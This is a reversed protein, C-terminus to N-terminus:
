VRIHMICFTLMTCWAVRESRHSVLIFASHRGLTTLSMAHAEAGVSLAGSAYSDWEAFTIRRYMTRTAHM